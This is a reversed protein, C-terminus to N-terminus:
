GATALDPGNKVAEMLLKALEEDSMNETAQYFAKALEPHRRFLIEVRYPKSIKSDFEIEKEAEGLDMGLLWTVKALLDKNNPM